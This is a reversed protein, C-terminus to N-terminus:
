STQVTRLSAIRVPCRHITTCVCGASRGLLYPRLKLREPFQAYAFSLSPLPGVDAPRVPMRRVTPNERRRQCIGLETDPISSGPPRRCFLVDGTTISLRGSRIRVPPAQGSRQPSETARRTFQPRRIDLQDFFIRTWISIQVVFLRFQSTLSPTCRRKPKGAVPYFLM